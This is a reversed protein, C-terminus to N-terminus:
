GKYMLNDLVVYTSLHGLSRIDGVVIFLPQLTLSYQRLKKKREELFVKIEGQIISTNSKRSEMLLKHKMGLMHSKLASEGM